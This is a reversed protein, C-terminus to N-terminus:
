LHGKQGKKKGKKGRQLWKILGEYINRKERNTDRQRKTVRQGKNIVRKDRKIARNNIKQPGKDRM